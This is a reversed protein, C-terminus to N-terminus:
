TVLKTRKTAPVKTKVSQNARKPKTHNDPKKVVNTSKPLNAELFSNEKGFRKSTRRTGRPRKQKTKYVVKTNDVSNKNEEDSADSEAALAALVDLPNCEGGLGAAVKTNEVSNNKGEPLSEDSDSAAVVALVDLCSHAQITQPMPGTTSGPASCANPIKFLPTPSSPAKPADTPTYGAPCFLDHQLQKEGFLKHTQLTYESAGLPTQQLCPPNGYSTFKPAFCNQQQTPKSPWPAQPSFINHQSPALSFQGHEFGTLQLSQLQSNSDYLQKRSSLACPSFGGQVNRTCSIYPYMCPNCPVYGIFSKQQQQSMTNDHIPSQGYNVGALYDCGCTCPSNGYCKSACVLLNVWKRDTGGSLLNQGNACGLGASDNNLWTTPVNCRSPCGCSAQRECTQIAAHPVVASQNPHQSEMTRAKASLQCPPSTKHM